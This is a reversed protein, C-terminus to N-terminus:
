QRYRFETYQDIMFKEKYKGSIAESQKKGNVDLGESNLSFSILDKRSKIINDSIFMSVIEDIRKRINEQDILAKEKYQEAEQRYLETKEKMKDVDKRQDEIKKMLSESLERDKDAKERYLEADKRYDDVRKRQEEIQERQIDVEKMMAEADQKANEVQKKSIEVERRAQEADDRAIKAQAKSESIMKDLEPKYDGIKEDPVRKGDIYLDSVKDNDITFEYRKNNVTHIITGSFNGKDKEEKQRIVTKDPVTDNKNSLFLNPYQKGKEQQIIATGSQQKIADHQGDKSSQSSFSLAAFSALVIGSTLITKEMANLTKNNNYLIRKVRQLLHPKTDYLAMVQPQEYQYEQFSVLARVYGIKNDSKTVAIADCCNEREQRLVSSIWLIAPNFFFISEITYQILNVLWDSRKIHALEHLLIAETQDPPINTALGVPFIIVPKLYGLVIPIKVAFSELLQVPKNIRMAKALETTKNQWFESAAHSRNNKLNQVYNLGATLRIFKIVFFIFWVLVIWRNYTNFYYTLKDILSYQNSLTLQVTSIGTVAATTATASGAFTATSTQLEYIFTFCVTIFFIIGLGLIWNYRISPRATKTLTIVMAALISLILGQWISHVLTLGIARIMNDAFVTSIFALPM